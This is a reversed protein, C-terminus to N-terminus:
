VTEGVSSTSVACTQRMGLRRAPRDVLIDERLQERLRGVAGVLLDVRELEVHGQDGLRQGFAEGPPVDHQRQAHPAVRQRHRDGVGEVGCARSSNARAVPRSTAATTEELFSMTLMM